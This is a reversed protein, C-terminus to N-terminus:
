EIQCNWKPDTKFYFEIITKNCWYVIFNHYNSITKGKKKEEFKPLYSADLPDHSLSRSDKSVSPFRPYQHVISSRRAGHVLLKRAKLWDCIKNGKCLNIFLCIIYIMRSSWTGISREHAVVTRPLTQCKVKFEKCM